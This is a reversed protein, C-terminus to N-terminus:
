HQALHSLRDYTRNVLDKAGSTNCACSLLAVVSCTRQGTSVGEPAPQASARADQEALGDVQLLLSQASVRQHQSRLPVHTRSRLGTLKSCCPFLVSQTDPESLCSSRSSHSM